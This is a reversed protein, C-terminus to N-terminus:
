SLSPNLELYILSVKADNRLLEKALSLGIGSAGGTILAVKNRIEFVM